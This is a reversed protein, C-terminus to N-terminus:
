ISHSRYYCASRKQPLSHNRSGYRSSTELNIVGPIDQIAKTVEYKLEELRANDQGELMFEFASRGGGGMVMTSGSVKINANPIDALEKTLIDVLQNANYKRQSRDILKVDMSALNTGTDIFIFGSSGLNTLIHVVESHKAVRNQITDM